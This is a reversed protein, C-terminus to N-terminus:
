MMRHFKLDALNSRLVTISPIAMESQYNDDHLRIPCNRSAQWRKTPTSMSEERYAFFLV